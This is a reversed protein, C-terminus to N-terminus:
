RKSRVEACGSGSLYIALYGSMWAGGWGVGSQCGAGGGRTMVEDLDDDGTVTTVEDRDLARALWVKWRRWDGGYADSRWQRGGDLWKRM